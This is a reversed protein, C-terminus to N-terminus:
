RRLDYKDEKAKMLADCLEVIIIDSRDAFTLDTNPVKRSLRTMETRLDKLNETSNIIRRIERGFEIAAVINSEM